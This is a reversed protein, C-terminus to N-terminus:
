VLNAKLIVLFSCLLPYSSLEPLALTGSAMLLITISSTCTSMARRFSGVKIGGQMAILILVRRAQIFAGRM